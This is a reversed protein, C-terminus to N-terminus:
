REKDAIYEYRFPKAVPLTFPIKTKPIEIFQRGYFPQRSTTCKCNRSPSLRHSSPDILIIPDIPKVFIDGDGGCLRLRYLFNPMGVRLYSSGTCDTKDYIVIPELPWRGGEESFSEIDPGYPFTVFASIGPIFLIPSGVYSVLIGLFQDNADYVRIEGAFAIPTLLLLLGITLIIGRKM